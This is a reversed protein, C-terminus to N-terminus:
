SKNFLDFVSLDAFKDFEKSIQLVILKGEKYTEILNARKLLGIHYNLTSQKLAFINELECFCTKGVNQIFYLLKLRIDNSIAKGFDILKKFATLIWDM